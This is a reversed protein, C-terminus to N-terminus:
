NAPSELLLNVTLHQFIDMHTEPLDIDDLLVDVMLGDQQTFSEKGIPIQMLANASIDPISQIQANSFGLSQYFDAPWELCRPQRLFCREWAEATEYNPNKVQFRPHKAAFCLINLLYDDALLTNGSYTLPSVQLAELQDAFWAYGPFDNPIGASELLDWLAAEVAVACLIEMVHTDAVTLVKCNPHTYVEKTRGNKEADPEQCTLIYTPALHILAYHASGLTSPTDGTPDLCIVTDRGASAVGTARMMGRGFINSQPLCPPTAIVSYEGAIDIHRLYPLQQELVPVAQPYKEMLITAAKRWARELRIALRGAEGTGTLNVRDNKTFAVRFADAFASFEPTRLIEAANKLSHNHM